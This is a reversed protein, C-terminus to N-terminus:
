GHQLVFVFSNARGILDSILCCEVTSFWLGLMGHEKGNAGSHSNLHLSHINLCSKKQELFLLTNPM